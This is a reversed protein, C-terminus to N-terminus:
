WFNSHVKKNGLFVLDQTAIVQGNTQRIQVTQPTFYNRAESNENGPSAGVVFDSIKSPTSLLSHLEYTVPSPAAINHVVKWVFSQAGSITSTSYRTITATFSSLTSAGGATYFPSTFSTVDSGNKLYVTQPNTGTSSGFTVNDSSLSSPPGGGNDHWETANSGTKYYRIKDDQGVSQGNVYQVQYIAKDSEDVVLGLQKGNWYGVQALSIVSQSM